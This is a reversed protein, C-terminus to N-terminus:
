FNLLYDRYLIGYDKTSAVDITEDDLWEYFVVQYYEYLTTEAAAKIDSLLPMIPSEYLTSPRKNDLEHSIGLIRYTKM